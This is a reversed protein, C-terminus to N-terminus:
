AAVEEGSGIEDPTFLGHVVDPYVLRALKASARAVCMDAPSKVWGSKDKVLGAMRADELTFSLSMPPDNERQTEFTAGESSRATCRFYKAKGSRLVLARILDASLTPRGEVIHIARLSAMATLGLERGALVSSMVAQPTGYASFLGSDFMFKALKTAESMSRPELQREWEAPAPALADAKPVLAVPALTPAPASPEPQADVIEAETTMEETSMDDDGEDFGPISAPRAIREQLIDEFPLDVDTRLTILQRTQAVNPQFDRLAKVESAKMAAEGADLAKYVADLSGFLALMDAAKKPGIGKAGKVNDSSDGVLTLYDCMQSPDVGFKERVDSAGFVAGTTASMVQVRGCVLQLLDKDSSVVLASVGDLALTRTVATAILDDAEFGPVSWVPFGDQKLAECALRIQFHLAEERPPRNAKYAPDLDHRFSRGSDCCVAVYAKGTALARVRAVIKTKVANPVPDATSTHWVPYAISSMDVVVIQDTTM